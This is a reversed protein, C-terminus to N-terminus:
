VQLVLEPFVTGINKNHYYIYHKAPLFHLSLVLPRRKMVAFFMGLLICITFVNSTKSENGHSWLKIQEVKIQYIHYVLCRPRSIFCCHQQKYLLLQRENSHNNTVQVEEETFGIVPLAKM